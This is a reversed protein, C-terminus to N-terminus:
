RLVPEFITIRCYHFGPLYFDRCAEPKGVSTFVGFRTAVGAVMHKLDLSFVNSPWLSFAMDM